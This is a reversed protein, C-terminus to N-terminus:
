SSWSQALGKLSEVLAQPNASVIAAGLNVIAGAINIGKPIDELTTITEQIQTTIDEIEALSSEVEKMALNTSLTLIDEGYKLISRQRQNLEEKQIDTLKKWNNFRFDNIAVALKYFRNALHTAEASTLNAM